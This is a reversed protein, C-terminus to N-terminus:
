ALKVGEEQISQTSQIVKLLNEPHKDERVIQLFREVLQLEEKNASTMAVYVEVVGQENISAECNSADNLMLEVMKQQTIKVKDRLLPDKLAGRMINTIAITSASRRLKYAQIEELIKTFTDRHNSQSSTTLETTNPRNLHTLNTIERYENDRVRWNISNNKIYISIVFERSKIVTDRGSKEVIRYGAKRYIPKLNQLLIKAQVMDALYALGARTSIKETIAAYRGKCSISIDKWTLTHVGSDLRVKIENSTFAIVKVYEKQPSQTLWKGVTRKFYSM